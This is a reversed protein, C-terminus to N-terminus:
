FVDKIDMRDTAPMQILAEILKRYRDDCMATSAVRRIFCSAEALKENPIQLAKVLTEAWVEVDMGCVYGNEGDKVWEVFAPEGENAVVPLGCAMAELMPTGLGESHQPM